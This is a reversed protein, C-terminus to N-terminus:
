GRTLTVVHAPQESSFANSMWSPPKLAKLVQIAAVESGMKFKGAPVWVQDIGKDDIRALGAVLPPTPTPAATAVVITAASTPVPPTPAQPDSPNAAATACGVLLPIILMLLCIVKTAQGFDV